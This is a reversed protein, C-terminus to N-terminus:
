EGSLVGFLILIPWTVAAIVHASYYLCTFVIFAVSYEHYYWGEYLSLLKFAFIVTTGLNVASDWLLWLVFFFRRSNTDSGEFISKEMM